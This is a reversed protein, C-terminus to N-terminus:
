KQPCTLTFGAPLPNGRRKRNVVEATNLCYRRSKGCDSMTRRLKSPAVLIKDAEATKGEGTNDFLYDLVHQYAACASIAEPPEAKDNASPVGPQEATSGPCTLAFETPLSQGENKEIAKQINNLTNVCYKRSKQCDSILIQLREKAATYYKGGAELNRSFQAYGFYYESCAKNAEPPDDDARAAALACCTTALILIPLRM